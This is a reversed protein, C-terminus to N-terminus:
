HVTIQMMISLKKDTQNISQVTCTSTALATALPTHPTHCGLLKEWDANLAETALSADFTCWFLPQELIFKCDAFRSRHTKGVAFTDHVRYYM